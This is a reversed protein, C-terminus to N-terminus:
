GAGDQCNALLRAEEPMWAGEAKESIVDGLSCLGPDGMRRSIRRCAAPSTFGRVSRAQFIRWALEFMDSMYHTDHPGNGPLM